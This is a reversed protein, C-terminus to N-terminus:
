KMKRMMVQITEKSAGLWVGDMRFFIPATIVLEVMGKNDSMNMEELNSVVELVDVVDDNADLIDENDM